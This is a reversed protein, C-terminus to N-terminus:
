SRVAMKGRVPDTLDGASLDRDPDRRRMTRILRQAMLVLAV